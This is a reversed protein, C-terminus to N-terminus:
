NYIYIYKFYITFSLMLFGNEKANKKREKTSELVLCLGLFFGVIVYLVKM